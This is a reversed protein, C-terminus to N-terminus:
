KCMYLDLIKTRFLLMYHYADSGLDIIYPLTLLLMCQRRSTHHERWIVVLRGKSVSSISRRQGSVKVM